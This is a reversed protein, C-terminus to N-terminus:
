KKNAVEVERKSLKLGKRGLDHLFGVSFFDRIEGLGSIYDGKAITSLDVDPLEKFETSVALDLCPTGDDFRRRENLNIM